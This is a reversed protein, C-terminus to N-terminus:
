IDAVKYGVRENILNHPSPVFKELIWNERKWYDHCKGQFTLADTLIKKEGFDFTQEM